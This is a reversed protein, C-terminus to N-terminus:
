PLSSIASTGRDRLECTHTFNGHPLMTNTKYALINDILHNTLDTPIPFRQHSAASEDRARRAVRGEELTCEERALWYSVM